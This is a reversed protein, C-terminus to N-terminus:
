AGASPTPEPRAICREIKLMARGRATLRYLQLWRKGWVWDLNPVVGAKEVHGQTQLVWLAVNINRKTMNLVASLEAATSPGEALARRVRPAQIKTM